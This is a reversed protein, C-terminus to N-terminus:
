CTYQGAAAAASVQGGLCCQSAPRFLHTGFTSGGGFSQGASAANPRRRWCTRASGAAVASVTGAWAASPRRRWCTRASGAAAASVRGAWAANPRLGSCTRASGRAPRSIPSRCPRTVYAGGLLPAAPSLRRGKEKGETMGPAACRMRRMGCTPYMRGAIRHAASGPGMFVACEVEVETTRSGPERERAAARESPRSSINSRERSRRAGRPM